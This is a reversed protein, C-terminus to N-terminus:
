SKPQENQQEYQKLDEQTKQLEEQAMKFRYQMFSIENQLLKIRELLFMKKYDTKDVDMVDMNM